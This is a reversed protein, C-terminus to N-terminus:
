SHGQVPLRECVFRNGIQHGHATTSRASDGAIPHIERKEVRVLSITYYSSRHASAYGFHRRDQREGSLGVGEHTTWQHEPRRFALVCHPQGCARLSAHFSIGVSRAASHHHQIAARAAVTRPGSPIPLQIRRLLSCGARKTRKLVSSTRGPAACCAPSPDGWTALGPLESGPRLWPSSGVGTASSSPGGSGKQHPRRPLGRAASAPLRRVADGLQTGQQFGAQAQHNGRHCRLPKGIGGGGQRRGSRSHGRQKINFGVADLAPEM